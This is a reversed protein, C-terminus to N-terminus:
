CMEKPGLLRGHHPVGRDIWPAARQTAILDHGTRPSEGSSVAVLLGVPAPPAASAVIWARLVGGGGLWPIPPTKKEVM